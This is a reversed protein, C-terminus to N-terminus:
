PMTLQEFLFQHNTLDGEMKIISKPVPHYYLTEETNGSLLLPPGGEAQTQWLRHYHPLLEQGGQVIHFTHSCCM